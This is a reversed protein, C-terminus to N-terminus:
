KEVNSYITKYTIQYTFKYHNFGINFLDFFVKPIGPVPGWPRQGAPYYLGRWLFEGKGPGKPTQTLLPPVPNPM